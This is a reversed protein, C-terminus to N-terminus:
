SAKLFYRLLKNEMWLQKIEKELELASLTFLIQKAPSGHWKPISKQKKEVKSMPRRSCEKVQDKTFGFKEGMERCSYWEHHLQEMKEYYQKIHAYKRVM